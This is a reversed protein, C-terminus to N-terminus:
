RNVPANQEILQSLEQLDTIEGHTIMDGLILQPLRADGIARANAQYLAVDIKIQRAVWSSKMERDLAPKGVLFEAKARMEALLPTNSTSLAWDDFEAFAKPNAHWVALAIRAFECADQNAPATVLILPNCAADLPVPLSVIGLLSGYKQQAQKLVPHLARCHSCTYDFLSLIYNTAPQAALKPLEEPDLLFAGNHLRIQKASWGVANQFPSIAFLQRKVLTQGSILSALGLSAALLATIWNRPAVTSGGSKKRAGTVRWAEFLVVLAAAVASFHTVLCFKCWARLVIFQLLVFWIAAAIVMMGLSILPLWELDSREARKTAHQPTAKRRRALIMRVARVGAHEFAELRPFTRNKGIGGVKLLLLLYFGAAPISVPLGLWYAWRSSLVKNCGSEPGCGAIGGGKISAYGLYVAGALAILLCARAFLLSRRNVQRGSSSPKDVLPDSNTNFERDPANDM